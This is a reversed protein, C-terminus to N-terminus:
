KWYAASYFNGSAKAGESMAKEMRRLYKPRWDKQLTVTFKRAKIGKVFHGKADFALPGSAPSGVGAVMRGVVTKTQRAGSRWVLAPKHKPAIFHRKTGVDLYGYIEDDTGVLIETKFPTVDLLRQFKVKRRFSWATAEFDFLLEKSAAINAKQIAKQVAAQNYKAPKIQKLLVVPSM